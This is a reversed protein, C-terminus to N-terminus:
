GYHFHHDNYRGNGFDENPDHLGNKSVIGGFQADYLLEDEVDGGLLAALSVHLRGTIEHLVAGSLNGQKTLVKAAHALQALRAVQKGYGYINLTSMTPFLNMDFKINQLIINAVSPDVHIDPVRDFQTNTLEEQYSWSSGIVPVMQGKICWYQLDFETATLMSDPSLVDAHHPLGLMLLEANSNANMMRTDYKFHITGIKGRFETENAVTPAMGLLPKLRNGIQSLLPEETSEFDWSVSGGTPYAAAHDVLRRLGTSASVQSLDEPDSDPVFPIYALRLVGTFPMTAVITTRIRTDFSLEISESAVFLWTMGEQTHMLFHM